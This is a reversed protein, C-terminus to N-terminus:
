IIEFQSAVQEYINIHLLIFEQFLSDRKEFIISNFINPFYHSYESYRSLLQSTAEDNSFPQLYDMNDNIEGQTQNYENILEHVSPKIDM